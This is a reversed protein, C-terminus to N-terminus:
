FIYEQSFTVPSSKLLSASYLDKPHRQSQCIKIHQIGQPQTLFAVRETNFPISPLGKAKAAPSQLCSEGMPLMTAQTRKESNAEKSELPRSIGPRRPPADLCSIEIVLKYSQECLALKLGLKWVKLREHCLRATSILVTLSM